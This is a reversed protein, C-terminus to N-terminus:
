SVYLVQTIGTHPGFVIDLLPWCVDISTWAMPTWAMRTWAADLGSTDLRHRLWLSGFCLSDLWLKVYSDQEAVQMAKELARNLGISNGIIEFRQKLAQLSVMIKIIKQFILLKM